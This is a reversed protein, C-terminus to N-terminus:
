CVTIWVRGREGTELLGLGAPGINKTCDFLEVGSVPNSSRSNGVPTLMPLLYCYVLYEHMLHM